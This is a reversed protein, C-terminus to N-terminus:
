LVKWEGTDKTLNGYNLLLLGKLFKVQDLFIPSIQRTM